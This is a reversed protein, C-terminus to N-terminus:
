AAIFALLSTCFVSAAPQLFECTEPVVALLTTVHEAPQPVVRAVEVHALVAALLAALVLDLIRGEEVV